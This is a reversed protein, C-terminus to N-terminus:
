KTPNPRLLGQSASLSGKLRIIREQVDLVTVKLQLLLYRLRHRTLRVFLREHSLQQTYTPFEVLFFHEAVDSQTISLLLNTSMFKYQTLTTLTKDQHDQVTDEGGMVTPPFWFRLFIEQPPSYLITASM